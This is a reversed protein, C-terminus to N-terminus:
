RYVRFKGNRVIQVTGTEGADRTATFSFRGTAGTVVPVNRITTLARRLAARDSQTRARVIGAALINVGDFAQAAFQDPASGYRSRYQAVFTRNLPRSSGAFWATGSIAGEAAAGALRILAPSNFGNGGIFHVGAPIGLRRAQELILAAETVLAGVLIVDPHAAKIRGLQTSFAKDGIAYTETDAIDLGLKQAEAKFIDGDGATFANDSGYIIAVRKFHLHSQAVKMTLPVVDAEGLSVRFIFSGIATIGPATNSTAIVPVGAAQAIPDAIKAESSLTPGLLALVRDRNIMQRYLQAVRTESTGADRVELVLPQHDIGGRSNIRAAALQAGNRISTGYVGASGTIDAVLGITITAAPGGAHAAPLSPPTLLLLLAALGIAGRSVARPMM